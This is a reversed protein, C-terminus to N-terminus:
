SEVEHRYVVGDRIVFCVKSVDNIDQLPNGRVAIVDAKYGSQLLGVTDSIGNMRASNITATRLAEETSMGCEIMCPFDKWNEGHPFVGIDTGYAVPVEAKVVKAFRDRQYGRMAKAKEVISADLNM